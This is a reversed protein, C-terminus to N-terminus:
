WKYIEWHCSSSQIIRSLSPAINSISWVTHHRGYLLYDLKFMHEVANTLPRKSTPYVLARIINISMNLVNSYFQFIEYVLTGLVWTSASIWTLYRFFIIDKVYPVLFTLTQIKPGQFFVSEALVLQWLHLLRQPLQAVSSSYSVMHCQSLLYLVSTSQGLWQIAITAVCTACAILIPWAGHHSTNRQTAINQSTNCQAVFHQLVPLLCYSYAFCQTALPLRTEEWGLM